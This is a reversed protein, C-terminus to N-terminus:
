DLLDEVKFISELKCKVQALNERAGENRDVIVMAKKVIAGKEEVIKKAEIISQGTTAVDDILVVKANEKLHPGEIQRKTGYEKTNKRVIFGKIPSKKLYSLAVAAGVIPDAGLTPGGIADIRHGKLMELLIIASLYAGEPSMTIIRGDLYYNSVNGSSLVFRGKRFAEKKLIVLLKKKFKEIVPKKM